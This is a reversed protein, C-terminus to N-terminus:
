KKKGGKAPSLAGLLVDDLLRDDALALDVAAEDSTVTLSTRLDDAPDLLPQGQEPTLVGGEILATVQNLQNLVVHTQGADLKWQIDHLRVPLANGQGKNLTGDDVLQQVNALLDSLPQGPHVTVKVTQTDWLDFTDSGEAAKVGVRLELDGIYDVPPTVTVVGTDHNVDLTYQITGTQTADYYVADGEADIASLPIQLPGNATTEFDPLDELFPGGNFTDEAVTVTFTTQASNGNSDDVTVTINAQEGVAANKASIELVANETDTFIDISNMVIDVLPRDGPGTETEGIARLVDLGEVLTGFISHNFDLHRWADLTVFFQSDNTDDAAKAYSLTGEQLHQLDVHYQDDFYGLTSGGSGTGTPDGAQIVFGDIVRHFIIGDYFDAEALEILRGSPRPARQEFLQFNMQGWGAVDVLMSRNGQLVEVIVNPNDSTVTYTLPDGDPDHGDLAVHLPAEDLVTKDEIEVISPAAEDSTVTLSTRLDDAADLLPQGQEPTLVGDDILDAVQNTFAKLQNLAVHTQGADLKQQIHQLKVSLAKGQGKNLAGDDVLQQVNALLAEIQEEASLVTITVIATDTGGNGDSLSYMFSDVGNFDIAPTYTITGDPNIAVSGTAPDTVATVSLPDGDPDSDNALVDIVVAVDEATTAADDTATLGALLTRDELREHRLRRARHSVGRRRRARPNKRDQYLRLFSFYRQM